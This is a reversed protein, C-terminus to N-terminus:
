LMDPPPVPAQYSFRQEMRVVRVAIRRALDNKAEEPLAEFTELESAIDDENAQPERAQRTEDSSETV